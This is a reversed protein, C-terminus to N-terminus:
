VGLYREIASVRMHVSAEEAYRRDSGMLLSGGPIWLLGAHPGTPAAFTVHSCPDNMPKMSEDSWV